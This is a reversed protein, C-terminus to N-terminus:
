RQFAHDGKASPSLVSRRRQSQRQFPHDCKASPSLVSRRRQSQRQFAHYGSVSVGSPITAEIEFVSISRRRPSVLWFADDGQSRSTFRLTVQSQTALIRRRRPSSCKSLLRNVGRVEAALVVLCKPNVTYFAADGRTKGDSVM